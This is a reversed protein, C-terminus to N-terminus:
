DDLPIFSNKVTEETFGADENAIFTYVASSDQYLIAEPVASSDFGAADYRKITLLIKGVQPQTGKYSLEYLSFDNAGDYRATCTAAQEETLKFLFGMEGCLISPQKVAPTLSAPDYSCWLALACVRTIDEKSDHVTLSCLPFEIVNDGDIDRSTIAATRSYSAYNASLFLPNTLSGTAADCYLLQTAYKGNDSAGDAIAGYVGEGINGCRLSFYSTIDPDIECSTETVCEGDHFGKLEAMATAAASAPILLLIEDTKDGDLDGTLFDTFGEEAAIQELEDGARFVSLRAASTGADCAIVAEDAGDGDIDAFRLSSVNASSLGCVGLKRFDTVRKAAVLIRANGNGDQYLAVAEDTGDHDLDRLVVGSQYGGTAPCLLEYDKDTDEEIMRQIDARDGAARPPSLIDSGTLSMSACGSLLVAAAAAAAIIRTRKM